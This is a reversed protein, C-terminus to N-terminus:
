ERVIINRPPWLQASIPLENFQPRATLMPTGGFLFASKQAGLCSIDAPSPLHPLPVLHFIGKINIVRRIM